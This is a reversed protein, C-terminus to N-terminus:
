RVSWIEWTESEPDGFEGLRVLLAGGGPLVRVDLAGPLDVVKTQTGSALDIEWLALVVQGGMDPDPVFEWLGAYATSASSGFRARPLGYDTYGGLNGTSITRLQGDGTLLEWHFSGGGGSVVTFLAASGDPALDPPGVQGDSWLIEGRFATWSVMGTTITEILGGGDLVTPWGHEHAGGQAPDSRESWVGSTLDYSWVAEEYCCPEPGGPTSIVVVLTDRQPSFAPWYNAYRFQEGTPAGDPAGAGVIPRLGTPLGDSSITGLLLSNTILGSVPDCRVTRLAIPDGPRAGPPVTGITGEVSWGPFVESGDEALITSRSGGATVVQLPSLGRPEDMCPLSADPEGRDLIGWSGDAAPLAIDPTRLSGLQAKVAGALPADSPVPSAVTTGSETVRGCAAM